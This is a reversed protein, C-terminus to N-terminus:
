EFPRVPAMALVDGGDLHLRLPVLAGPELVASPDLLMLHAGGPVLTAGSPLAALPEMRALGGDEITRHLAVSGFWPSSAGRLEGGGGVSGYAGRARAAAPADAVWLQPSVQPGADLVARLDGEVREVETPRLITGAVRGAPDVVFLSTSHDVTYQGDAGPAGLLYGAGLQEVARDVAARNGTVAELPFGAWAAHATLREPTDRAPDVSLFVVSPMDGGMREALAGLARTTRPCVDPCSLYGVFVLTWGGAFRFEDFSEGAADTLEWGILAQPEPEAVWTQDLAALAGTPPEACGVVSFAGLAVVSIWARM